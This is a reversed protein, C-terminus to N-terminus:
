DILSTHDTLVIYDLEYDQNENIEQNTTLTDRTDLASSKMSPQPSVCGSLHRISTEVPNEM